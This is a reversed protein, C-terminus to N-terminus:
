KQNNKVCMDTNEFACDKCGKYYPCDKCEWVVPCGYEIYTDRNAIPCSGDVCTVGCYGSCIIINEDDYKDM